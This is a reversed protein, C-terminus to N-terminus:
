GLSKYFPKKHQHAVSLIIIDNDVIAYFISYPYRLLITRRLEDTIKPYLYPFLEINEFAKKIDDRFAEGLTPKQLNYYERASEIEQSAIKSIKLIM